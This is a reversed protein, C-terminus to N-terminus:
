EKPKGPRKIGRKYDVKKEKVERIKRKLIDKVKDIAVRVNEDRHEARVQKGFLNVNAEAYFVEGSRHHYTTRAIEFYIYVNGEREFGQLLTKLSNIKRRIYQKIAPTLELNTAKISLKM